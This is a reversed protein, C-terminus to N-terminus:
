LGSRKKYLKRPNNTAAAEKAQAARDQVNDKTKKIEKNVQQSNTYQKM